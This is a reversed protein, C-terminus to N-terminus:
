LMKDKVRDWREFTVLNKFTSIVWNLNKTAVSFFFNLNVKKGNLIESKLKNKIYFSCGERFLTMRRKRLLGGRFISMRDLGGRKSFKTPPENGGSGRRGILFPTPNCM